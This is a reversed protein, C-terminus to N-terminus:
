GGSQLTLEFTVEIKTGASVQKASFVSRDMLVGGSGANFVGHETVAFSGSFTHEAFTRYINASGGETQTGTARAEGACPSGLATDSASEVATGVGFEHYKFTNIYNATHLADVLHEVFAATVCKGEVVEEDMLRYLARPVPLHLEWLLKGLATPEYVRIQTRGSFDLTAM